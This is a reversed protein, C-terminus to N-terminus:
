RVKQMNRISFFSEKIPTSFNLNLYEIRTIHGEKDAPIVELIHPLIKGGLKGIERGYMTNVLYDDEDYFETKLELFDKKDIWIIVKGWVVAADEKPILTIEWCNRDEVNAEGTINHAYDYIISSQKVLDDNTFDSGMWSQSMMSPPLKIVRDITPQWNWMERSRKLFSTGKDRAPATILILSLEDKYSWMKMTTERTWDPRIITMKMEGHSYDGRQKEDAKKIIEIASLGQSFVSTNLTWFIAMIQFMAMLQHSYNNM